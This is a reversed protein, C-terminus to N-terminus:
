RPDTLELRVARLDIGTVPRDAISRLRIEIENDGRRWKDAAVPLRYTRVTPEARDALRNLEGVLEGNVLVEVPTGTRRVQAADVVVFGAAVDKFPVTKALRLGEPKPVAFGLAPKAGLHHPTSDVPVRRGHFLFRVEEVRERPLSLEGLVPHILVLRKDDFAKAAGDLVDHSGDGAALRVRVQEGATATETVPGRRFTFESVEPWGLALTRGKVELSVGAPGAGVLTGYTEDGDLSRVAEATLDAWSRAEGAPEFRTVLVGTIPAAETGDGEGALKVARLEGPGADRAWLVLDDVVIALRDKDFEARVRHPGATRKPKGEDDAKDRTTVTYGQGPGILEVRVTAPVDGRVFGLELNVRRSTEGASQFTVDVRGATLAPKVAAEVRQGARDFILKGGAARPEGTMTWGGLGATFADFLVIRGGAAPTVREVATRPIALEDAWPTRVHLARVDLSRLEATVVEGRGLHVRHWLLVPPAAPSATAFRVRDVKDVPENRDASRFAFRGSPSLSLGGAVRSGDSRVAEDGHAFLAAALLAAPSLRHPM